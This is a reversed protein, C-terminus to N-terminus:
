KVAVRRSRFYQKVEEVHEINAFEFSFVHETNNKPHIDLIRSRLIHVFDIEKHDLFTLEQFLPSCGMGIRKEFLLLRPNIENYVEAGYEDGLQRPWKEWPRVDTSIVPVEIGNEPILDSITFHVSKAKKIKNFRNLIDFIVYGIVLFSVVILMVYKSVENEM